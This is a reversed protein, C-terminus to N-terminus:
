NAFEHVLRAFVANTWGFGSQTKYRNPNFVGVKRNVVDYKEWLEGTQLLLKENMALWKKAIRLADEHYGYNKLGQIVIWQQGPWGNPYDHQKTEKSLGLNLTNVIGGDFEFRPLIKARIKAAQQATALQAWLPYFGAVSYFKSQTKQNPIYDFFLQKRENWM